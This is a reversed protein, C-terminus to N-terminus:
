LQEPVDPVGEALVDPIEIPVDLPVFTSENEHASDRYCRMLYSQQRLMVINTNEWLYRSVFYVLMKGTATRPATGYFEKIGLIDLQERLKTMMLPFAQKWNQYLNADFGTACVLGIRASGDRNNQIKLVAKKSGDEYLWHSYQPNSFENALVAQSDADLAGDVNTITYISDNQEMTTLMFVADDLTTALRWSM